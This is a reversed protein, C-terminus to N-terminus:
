FNFLGAETTYQAQVAAGKSFSQNSLAITQERLHRKSGSLYRNQLRFAQQKLVAACDDQTHTDDALGQLDLNCIARTNYGLDRIDYTGEGNLIPNAVYKRLAPIVGISYNFEKLGVPPVPANTFTAGLGLQAQFQSESRRKSVPNPNLQIGSMYPAVRAVFQFYYPIVISYLDIQAAFQQMRAWRTEIPEISIINGDIAASIIDNEFDYEFSIRPDFYTNGLQNDDWIYSFSINLATNDESVSKTRPTPNLDTRNTIKRFINLAENFGSFGAYRTRLQSIDTNKCGNIQGQLSITSIGAEIGSNYETTFRLIGAGSSYIDAIYSEKIEYTNNFRDINEAVTQYCPNLNAPNIFVPLVQGAWGTRAQVWTKANSLSDSQAASTEIGRCSVTHNISVIGNESEQFSFEDKPDLVGYAGSFYGSPYCELTIVYPIYGNSYRSEPFSINNVRIGSLSLINVSDEFIDLVQFDKRFGSLLQQQLNLYGTYHLCRGTIVSSLTIVEKAAWREGADIPQFSRGILPTPSIGSFIDINNYKITNTM